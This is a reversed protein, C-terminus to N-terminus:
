GKFHPLLLERQPLDPDNTDRCRSYAPDIGPQHLSNLPHSLDRSKDSGEELFAMHPWFVIFCILLYSTSYFFLFLFALTSKRQVGRGVVDRGDKKRRSAGMGLTHLGRLM